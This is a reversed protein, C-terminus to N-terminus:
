SFISRLLSGIICGNESRKPVGFVERKPGLKSGDQSELRGLLGGLGGGLPRWISSGSLHNVWSARLVAWSRKPVGFVERKPGLKSGDQSELRGLLGGLGGGLPRWISSGSLHNITEESESKARHRPRLKAASQIINQVWSHM